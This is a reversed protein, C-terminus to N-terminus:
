DVGNRKGFEHKSNRPKPCRYSGNCTSFSSGASNAVVFVIWPIVARREKVLGRYMETVGEGAVITGGPIHDGARARRPQGATVNRDPVVVVLGFTGILHIM